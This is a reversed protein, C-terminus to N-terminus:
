YKYDMLVYIYGFQVLLDQNMGITQYSKGVGILNNHLSNSTPSIFTAEVMPSFKSCLTISDMDIEVGLRASYEALCFPVCKKFSIRLSDIRIGM